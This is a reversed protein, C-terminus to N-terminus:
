EGRPFRPVVPRRAPAGDPAEDPAGPRRIHGRHMGCAVCEYRVQGRSPDPVMREREGCYPCVPGDPWRIREALRVPDNRNKRSIM